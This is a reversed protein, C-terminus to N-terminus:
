PMSSIYTKTMSSPVCLIYDAKGIFEEKLSTITDQEVTTITLINLGPNEKKLWWVIGEHNDSHYSGNYHLFTQGNDRNKHISVAMTADKIAQARAINMTDHMGPGRMMAMMSKYCEVEPDFDVPLPAMYEMAEPELGDLGEFGKKNVIAAYRRPINTAIFALKHEKAFVVLPKYDTKYNNWLKAEAEFNREAIKGSLYENLLLQNDTEFMEAGLVLKEKKENYIDGTLELQMWHCLSNNHLEGFFVIDAALADKLMEKYGAERGKSNFLKYAPKDGKMSLLLLAAPVM